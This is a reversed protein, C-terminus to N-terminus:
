SASAVATTGFMTNYHVRYLVCGLTCRQYYDPLLMINGIVDDLLHARGSQVNPGISNVANVHQVHMHLRWASPYYHFFCRLRDSHLGYHEAIYESVQKWTDKLLPVHEGTLDRISRLAENKFIVLMYLDRTKTDSTRNWKFDPMLLFEETELLIPENEAKGSLIREIWEPQRIKPEVYKYYMEPTENVVMFEKSAKSGAELTDSYPPLENVYIEKNGYQVLYNRRSGNQSLCRVNGAVIEAIFHRITHLDLQKIGNFKYWKNIDGRSGRTSANATASVTASVLINNDRNALVTLSITM